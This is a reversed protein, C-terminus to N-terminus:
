AMPLPIPHVRAMTEIPAMLSFICYLSTGLGRCPNPMVKMVTPSIAMAIIHKEPNFNYCFSIACNINVLMATKRRVMKSKTTIRSTAFFYREGLPFTVMVTLPSLSSETSCPLLTIAVSLSFPMKRGEAKRPFAVHRRPLATERCLPQRYVRIGPLKSLDRMIQLLACQPNVKVPHKRQSLSRRGVLINLLPV